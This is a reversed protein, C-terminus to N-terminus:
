HPLNVAGLVFSTLVVSGISWALIRLALQEDIPM